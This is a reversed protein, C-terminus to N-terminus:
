KVYPMGRHGMIQYQFGHIKVAPGSEQQDWVIRVEGPEKEREVIARLEPRFLRSESQREIIDINGKYLVVKYKGNVAWQSAAIFQDCDHKLPHYWGGHYVLYAWQREVIPKFLVQEKSLCLQEMDQHITLIIKAAPAEYVERSKLGIMGDEFMDIKGISHSGGLDNLYHVINALGEVGDCKVPLGGEFEIEMEHPEDCANEPYKYWIFEDQPIRMKLNSVEGSGISRCWMTLDDGIGAKYPIGYQKSLEKEEERNMNFDRVPVVITLDPAFLSFVNHMRFQDNGKGTSGECLSDCGQEVAFEAVKRAILQRTMSTAVPYGEYSSNAWIAKTLCENVFEEEADIFFWPVGLLEAKSKCMEIEADTLGVNVTCALVEECGYYEPLLKLALASDLGGSYAVACKKVQPIEITYKGSLDM